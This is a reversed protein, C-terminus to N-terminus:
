VQDTLTMDPTYFAYENKGHRKVYYLATDAKKFLDEFSDRGPQGLACGASCHISLEGREGVRLQSLKHILSDISAHLDSEQRVGSLFAAFEDGGMRALIDSSRFHQRLTAAIGLLARDGQGHGLADNVGKLDDLDLLVMLCARDEPQGLRQRILEEAAARNYLGTMGDREARRRVAMSAEKERTVDRALTFVRIHGSYPDVVFQLSVNFWGPREGALTVVWDEELQSQGDAALTMLRERSFYSRARERCDPPFYSELLLELAQNHSLGALRQGLPLEGGAKEVVDASLDTEIYSVGGQQRSNISQLYRAYSLEREHQDTIDLFSLAAGTTATEELGLNTYRMDFWRASQDELRLHLRAAGTPRGAHIDRFVQELSDVSDELVLGRSILGQPLDQYVLPLGMARCRDGDLAAAQGRNPDYYYVARQSHEAAAQLVRQTTQSSSLDLALKLQAATAKEEDTVRVITFELVDDDYPNEVRLVTSEKWHYEGDDGLQRHELRVVDRGQSFAQLLAARSFTSLFEEKEEEPAIDVGFQILQDFSGQMPANNNLEGQGQNFKICYFSNQTLNCVFTVPYVTGLAQFLGSLETDRHQQRRKEETVDQASALAFLPQEREDRVLSVRMTFWRLRNECDMARVDVPGGERGRDIGAFLDLWAAASEPAIRGRDVLTQPGNPIFEEENGAFAQPDPLQFSKDAVQYCFLVRGSQKVATRYQIESLRLREEMSRRETVDACSGYFDVTDGDGPVPKAVYNIWRLGQGATHLRLDMDVPRGQEAGLELAQLLRQGEQPQLQRRLQDVPLSPDNRDPPLGLIRFAGDSLYSHLLRGQSMTLVVLGVPVNHIIADRSRRLQLSETRDSINGLFANRGNWDIPQYRIFYHRGRYDAEECVPGDSMRALMCGPCPQSQAKIYEYCPRGMGRERPQGTMKVAADNVFLLERSHRDAVFLVSDTEDIIKQYLATTVSLNHYVAQFVPYSQHQGLRRGRLNLWLLEGNQHTARFSVDTEAGSACAARMEAWVMDRDAEYVMSGGQANILAEYQEPSRGTLASVGESAFLLQLGDPRVAYTAVGGPVADIIAALERSQEAMRSEAAVQDSIDILTAYLLPAEGERAVSHLLVQLWFRGGDRRRARTRPPEVVQGAELRGKDEPSLGPFEPIFDLPQMDRIRRDYEARSFGFIRCTKDNVYQPRLRTGQEFVAVGVPLNRIINGYMANLREYEVQADIDIMITSVAINDGVRRLVSASLQVWRWSLDATLHRFRVVTHDLGAKLAYDVVRRLQPLDQPHVMRLPDERAQEWTQEPTFGFMSSATANAYTLSVGQPSVDFNLVGGPVSNIVGSLQDSLEANHDMLRKRTSINEISVYFIYAGAKQALCRLRCMLWLPEQGQRLPLSCLEGATEEGNAIAGELLWIFEELSEPTLRALVDYQWRAYEERTCGIVEFFKDNLRLAAVQGNEYEMIASGGLFSNFLLTSQTTADLFDAAHDLGGSFRTEPTFAADARSLLRGFAAASLPKSFYYGQMYLCGVSKLYEAQQQNEVGEALVPLNLGHAMRVVSSLISGGRGLNSSESVFKMDLKLLDVPVDKLTNLSSYGSGFDDMEVAFGNEQLLSVIRILQEPNDMYASETIELHLLRSEIGYKKVLDLFVEVLRPYYLDRRSVNVSVPYVRLGQDLWQRLQRCTQEWIYRDLEFIFGNKEFVPIFQDPPILGRSPHEWRALAEAGILCGSDYNYQPQYWAVFQGQALAQKMDRTIEQEQVVRQRMSDEYWAWHRSYSNKVSRLALLARDCMLGVDLGAEEVGYFGFRLTFSYNPFARAFEECTVRYLKEEDLQSREWCSVFHDADFHGVTMMGPAQRRWVLSLRGVERLLRDGQAIGFSDNYMKFSDIDWRAIVYDTDPHAALLKATERCFTQKNWLGTKSDIESARVLQVQWKQEEAATSAALRELLNDVRRRVSKAMFPKTIVDVAGLDLARDQDAEQTSATIVLVPISSLEPRRSMAELVGFGDLRPMRLDLLVASIRGPHADLCELVALGDAAELVRYDPTFIHKLLSRNIYEDDAVLIFSHDRWSSAM